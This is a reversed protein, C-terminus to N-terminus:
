KNINANQTTQRFQPKFRIFAVGNICIWVRGDHAIQIGFDADHLDMREVIEKNELSVIGQTHTEPLVNMHNKYEIAGTAILDIFNM